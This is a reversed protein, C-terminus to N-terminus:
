RRLFSAITANISDNSKDSLVCSNGNYKYTLNRSVPEKGEAYEVFSIKVSCLGRCRTVTRLIRNSSFDMVLLKDLKHKQMFLVPDSKIKVHANRIQTRYKKEALLPGRLEYMDSSTTQTFNYEAVANVVTDHLIEAFEEISEKSYNVNAPIVALRKYDNAFSVSILLSLLLFFKM